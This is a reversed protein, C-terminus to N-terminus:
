RRIEQICKDLIKNCDDIVIRTKHIKSESQNFESNKDCKIVIGYLGLLGLVALIKM